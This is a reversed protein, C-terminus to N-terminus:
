PEAIITCVESPQDGGWIYAHSMFALVLYARRWEGEQQLHDTSLVPLRDIVGRLRKSLLFAQLNAVVAEWSRYYPDPLTEVPLAEPLFGTLPSVDYDVPNPIPPLM